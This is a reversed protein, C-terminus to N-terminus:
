EKELKLHGNHDLHIICTDQEIISKMREYEIKAEEITRKKNDIPRKGFYITGNDQLSIGLDSFQVNSLDVSIMNKDLYGIIDTKM